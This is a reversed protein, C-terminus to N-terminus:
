AKTLAKAIRNKLDALADWELGLAKGSHPLLKLSKKIWKQTSTKAYIASIRPTM